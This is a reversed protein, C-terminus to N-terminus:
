DLVLTPRNIVKRQYKTYYINTVEVNPVVITYAAMNTTYLYYYFNYQPNEQCSKIYSHTHTYRQIYLLILSYVYCLLVLCVKRIIKETISFQPHNAIIQNNTNTFIFYIIVSICLYNTIMKINMDM